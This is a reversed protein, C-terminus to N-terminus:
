YSLHWYISTKIPEQPGNWRPITAAFKPPDLIIADFSRARDSLHRLEQFVDGEIWEASDPNYGNLSLNERALRLASGSSDISCVHRGWSDLCGCLFGRYLLFLETFSWREGTSLYEQLRQRNQRQDLYFGTKHGHKYDVLFRLRRGPHNGPM